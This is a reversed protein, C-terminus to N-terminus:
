TGVEGGGATARATRRARAPVYLESCAGDVPFLFLQFIQGAVRPTSARRTSTTICETNNTKSAAGTQVPTAATKNNTKSM